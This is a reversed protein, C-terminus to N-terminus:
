GSCANLVAVFATVESATGLADLQPIQSELLDIRSHRIVDKVELLSAPAMSFDRLGLALLLRTYRPDGAIEGCISLPIRAARAAEVTIRILRLVAPHLPNYLYGVSEDLRDVALTYQILDNTGISLFDLDRALAAATLAAAPVEIMGGVPMDPDFAVGLAALQRRQEDILRRAQHVEELGTLMPLMLRVPGLASVRLIARVQEAFVDPRRLSYRISRLGLAPNVSHEGDEIHGPMAKDVGLDLTRITLMRGDLCRLVRRYAKFQEEEDPFSRREIFLMETRFLGCGDAGAEVMATLDEEMEINARLAVERGDLSRAPAQRLRGLEAQRREMRERRAEFAAIEVESAEALVLGASADILVTEDEILYDLVGHCAVITPLGLGRALIAAHSHAGGAECVLAGVGDHYFLMVDEPTFDEAAVIRGRLGTAETVADGPRHLAHLHGQLRCVMYEIDDKRTQLYPDAMAEFVAILEERQLQLAWEATCHRDRIIALPVESFAADDLMLLYTDIFSGIDAPVDAPIRERLTQLQERTERLAREYRATEAEIEAATISEERVEPRDRHLLTVPAIVIGRSVSQGDLVLTM